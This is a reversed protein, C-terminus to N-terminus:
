KIVVFERDKLDNVVAGFSFEHKGLQNVINWMTVSSISEGGANTVYHYRYLSNFFALSRRETLIKLLNEVMM